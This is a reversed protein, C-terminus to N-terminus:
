KKMLEEIKAKAIILQNKIPNYDKFFISADTGFKELDMFWGSDKGSVYYGIELGDNTIFKNEIYNAQSVKDKEFESILNEVAKITEILDKYNISGVSDSYKGTKIIQFFYLIETSAKLIRIRNEYNYNSNSLKPLDYDEFKILTGSKALFTSYSTTDQNKQDQANGTIFVIFFLVAIIKKM